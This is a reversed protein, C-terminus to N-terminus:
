VSENWIVFYLTESTSALTRPYYQASNNTFIAASVPTGTLTGTNTFPYTTYVNCKITNGGTNDPSQLIINSIAGISGTVNVVYYLYYSGLTLTNEVVPCNKTATHNYSYWEGINAPFGDAPKTPSFRNIPVYGSTRSAGSGSMSGLYALRLNSTTGDNQLETRIMSMSIPGSAPLAM